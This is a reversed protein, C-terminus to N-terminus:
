LFHQYASTYYKIRKLPEEAGRKQPAISRETAPVEVSNNSLSSTLRVGLGWGIPGIYSM